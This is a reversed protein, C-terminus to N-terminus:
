DKNFIARLIQFSPFSSKRAGNTSAFKFVTIFTFFNFKIKTLFLSVVIHKCEAAIKHLRAQTEMRKM